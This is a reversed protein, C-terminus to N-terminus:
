NLWTVSNVTSVVALVSPTSHIFGMGTVKYCGRGGVWLCKGLCLVSLAASSAILLEIQMNIPKEGVL